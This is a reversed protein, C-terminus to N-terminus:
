PNIYHKLVKENIRRITGDKEMKLLEATIKHILNKHKKHMYLHFDGELLNPKLVKIDKIGMKKLIALGQSKEFLAIEIRGKELMDFVQEANQLSLVSNAGTSIKELIKWGRLLGIDYPQISKVDLVEFDVNKSFVVMEYHYIPVPISILNPYSKELGLVRGVDGDEIGNNANLLVREATELDGIDIKIDLRRALEKYVLDMVGDKHSTTIPPYYSSGLVLTTQAHVQFVLLFCFMFLTIPGSVRKM